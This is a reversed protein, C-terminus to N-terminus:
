SLASSGSANSPPSKEELSGEEEEEPIEIEYAAPAPPLGLIDRFTWKSLPKIRHRYRWAHSVALGTLFLGSSIHWKKPGVFATIVSTLLSIGLNIFDQTAQGPHPPRARPYRRGGNAIETLQEAALPDFQGVVEAITALPLEDPEYELLVSGIQHNITLKKVGPWDSVDIDQPANEPIQSLRFRLRGPIYSTLM